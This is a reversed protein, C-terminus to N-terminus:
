VCGVGELIKFDDDSIVLSITSLPSGQVVTAKDLPKDEKSVESEAMIKLTIEKNPDIVKCDILPKPIFLAYSNGIKSIKAKIEVM